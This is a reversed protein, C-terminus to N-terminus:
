YTLEIFEVRLGGGLENIYSEIIETLDELTLTKEVENLMWPYGSEFIIVDEKTECNDKVIYATRFDFTIGTERGMVDAIIGYFGCDGTSENEWDYFDEKPNFAESFNNKTYDLLAIGNELEKVTNEHNLIFNRLSEDSAFVKFGYGCISCAM